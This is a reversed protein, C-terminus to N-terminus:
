KRRLLLAIFHFIPVHQTRFFFIQDFTRSDLLNQARLSMLSHGLLLSFVFMPSKKRFNRVIQETSRLAPLRRRSDDRVASIM